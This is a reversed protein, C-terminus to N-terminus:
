ARKWVSETDLWTGFDKVDPKATKMSAIDAGFGDTRMWKMMYGFDKSMWQILGALLNFTTPLTEGTNKEFVAKLESFSLEDGALSMSMNKYEASEARLFAQAGFFGVDSTAIMQLKKAEEGLRMRFSTTFVKGFFDPTLNDYFAVPRLVTWTMNTGKTKAFLHQEINHKTIFHPVPTPTNESDPGRDASTYVFHSVGNRLAADVLAKGHTEENSGLPVGWIPYKTAAKAQRFIDDIAKFDGTVLKIKPSKQLLKQASSSQANRTVAIIDFPADAKLLANIVSGGQKGTAGTILLARPTM